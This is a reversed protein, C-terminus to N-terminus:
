KLSITAMFNEVEKQSKFDTFDIPKDTYGRSYGDIFLVTSDTELLGYFASGGEGICYVTKLGQTTVVGQYCAAAPGQANNIFNEAAAKTKFADKAYGNFDDKAKKKIADDKTVVFVYPGAFIGGVPEDYTGLTSNSAKVGVPALYSPYAFSLGNPNTYTKWGTPITPAVPTDKPEEMSEQADSQTITTQGDTEAPAIAKKDQLYSYGFFSVVAILAVALVINLYKSKM